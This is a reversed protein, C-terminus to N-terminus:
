AKSSGYNYASVFAGTPDYTMVQLPRITVPLKGQGLEFVYRTVHSDMAAESVEIVAVPSGIGCYECAKKAAEIYLLERSPAVDKAFSKAESWQDKIRQKESRSGVKKPSNGLVELYELKALYDGLLDQNELSTKSYLQRGIDDVNRRLHGEILAYEPDNRCITKWPLVQLKFWGDLTDSEFAYEADPNRFSKARKSGSFRGHSVEIQKPLEIVVLASSILNDGIREVGKPMKYALSVSEPLNINRYPILM